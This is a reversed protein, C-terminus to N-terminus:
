NSADSDFAVFRGDGSIAPATSLGSGQAGASNVSVRETTRAQRDRVFIDTTQNTDGSVLNDADSDFAIFRGNDSIAALISAENALDGHSSVSVRDVELVDAWPPRLPVVLLALAALLGVMWRGTTRGTPRLCRGRSLLRANM